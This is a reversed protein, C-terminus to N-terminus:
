PWAIGTPRRGLAKYLKVLAEPTIERTMYVKSQAAIPLCALIALATLVLKKM